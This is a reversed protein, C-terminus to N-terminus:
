GACLKTQVKAASSVLTDISVKTSYIRRCEEPSIAVIVKALKLISRKSLFLTRTALVHDSILINAWAFHDVAHVGGTLV